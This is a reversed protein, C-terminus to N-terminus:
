SRINSFIPNIGFKEGLSLLLLSSIHPPLVGTAVKCGVADVNLDFATEFLTRYEIFLGIIPYFKQM